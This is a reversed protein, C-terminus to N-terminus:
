LILMADGFSFFRYGLDIAEQYAQLIRERGAFASVLMLLTSRPLHFNTVMAQVARFRYGPTIFLSTPGSFARVPALPCLGDEQCPQAASELARVVTTGVAVIRGGALRTENIERAATESLTCTETHIQHQEVEEAKVPRFTDMGIHLTLFSFGVGMERLNLLLEGTFHLGATPAASSGDERAYVTQYREPDALPEHIYPPLPVAGLRDLEPELPRAFRLLRGGAETEALVDATLAPEQGNSAPRAPTLTLETGPRLGKGGVLAEWTTADHRHLLLIEVKGGTQSKHGFLRAPIVRTQNFVLRDGPQLYEALHRFSRHELAADGRRLVLLRSADRPEMPQQAIREPPLQYDFLDTKM